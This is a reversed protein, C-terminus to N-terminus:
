GQPTAALVQEIADLVQKSPRDRGEEYTRMRELGARGYEEVGGAQILEVRDKATLSDYGAFPEPNELRELRAVLDSQTEEARRARDEAARAAAEAQAVRAEAAATADDAAVPMSLVGKAQEQAQDYARISATMGAYPLVGQASRGMDGGRRFVVSVVRDKDNTGRVVADELADTSTNFFARRGRLAKLASEVEEMDLAESRAEDIPRALALTLEHPFNARHRQLLKNANNHVGLRETLESASDPDMPGLTLGPATETAM